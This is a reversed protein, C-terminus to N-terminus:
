TNHYVEQSVGEWLLNGLYDTSAEWLQLVGLEVAHMDAWVLVAHLKRPRQGM